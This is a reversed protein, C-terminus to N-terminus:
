TRGYHEVFAVAAGLMLAILERLPMKAEILLNEGLTKVDGMEIDFTTQLALVASLYKQPVLVELDVIPEWVKDPKDPFDQPQKIIKTEGNYQVRYATFVELEGNDRQFPISFIIQRQPHTLFRRIGEDLDLLRAAENFYSIADGFVSVERVSTSM